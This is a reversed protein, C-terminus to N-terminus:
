ALLERKWCHDPYKAADAKPTVAQLIDAPWWVAARLECGGCAKCVGLDDHSATKRGDVCDLMKRDTWNRVWGKGTPVRNKPCDSCILARRDAESQEVFPSEGRDFKGKLLGAIPSERWWLLVRAAAGQAYQVPSRPVSEGVREVLDRHGRGILVRATSHHVRQAAEAPDLGHALLHAAVEEVIASFIPSAFRGGTEAIACHWGGPPSTNEDRVRLPQPQTDAM